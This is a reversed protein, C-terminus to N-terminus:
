NFCSNEKIKPRPQAGYKYINYLRILEDVEQTLQAGYLGGIENQIIQNPINWRLKSYLASSGDAQVIRSNRDVDRMPTVDPTKSM